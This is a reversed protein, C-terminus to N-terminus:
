PLTSTDVGCINASVEEPPVVKCMRKRIAAINIMGVAIKPWLTVSEIPDADPVGPLETVTGIV